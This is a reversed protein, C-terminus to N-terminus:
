RIAVSKLNARELFRSYRASAPDASSVLFGRARAEAKLFIDTSGVISATLLFSTAWINM